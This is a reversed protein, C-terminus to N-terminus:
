AEQQEDEDRYGTIVVLRRLLAGRSGLARAGRAAEM